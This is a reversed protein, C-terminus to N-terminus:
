WWKQLDIKINRHVKMFSSVLYSVCLEYYTAEFSVGFPNYYNMLVEINVFLCNPVATNLM